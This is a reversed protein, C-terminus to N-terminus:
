SPVLELGLHERVLKGIAQVRAEWSHPGVAELRPTEREPGEELAEVIAREFEGVGRAVHVVNRFEETRPLPSTVVPRGAALYEYLKLPDVSRTLESEEFPILCVDFALLYSPVQEFSRPGLWHLNPLSPPASPLQWPGLLVVHWSPRLRALEVLLELDVWEAVNGVFGLRPRPIPILDGPPGSWGSRARRYGELDVANPVLFVRPHLSALRSRLPEATALVLDARRLLERESQELNGYGARFQDWRDVCDYIVPGPSLRELVAVLDPHPYSIWVLPDRLGLRRRRLNLAAALFLRNFRQLPAPGQGPITLPTVFDLRGARRGEGSRPSFFLKVKSAMRRRDGPGVRRVGLGDAFLVRNTEALRDALHQFRGRPGNWDAASLFLVDM